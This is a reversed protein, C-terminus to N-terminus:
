RRYASSISRRPVHVIQPQLDLPIEKLSKPKYGTGTMSPSGELPTGGFTKLITHIQPNIEIKGDRRPLGVSNFSGVTVISAYRDHFEYADYGKERLALTLDHSKVAAQELRSPLDKRKNYQQVKHQDIVVIGTFTAVKVTYKGKCDLLSHKVGKNMRLVLDDLGQSVFHERPLLPNRTIFAKGMPGKKKNEHGDPLIATQVRRLAALSQNTQKRDRDLSLARPRLTKIKSLTRQVGGHEVSPFNGVLVAIEHMKGDRRYRMRISDGHRDIGRGKTSESFDFSMEHLYAKLKYRKRLELVLEEAQEEAGEGSFTAAMILWPGEEETIRYDANPDAAVRRGTILRLLMHQAFLPQAWM